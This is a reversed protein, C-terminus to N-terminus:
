EEEEEEEGAEGAEGEGAEGEDNFPERTEPIRLEAPCETMFVRYKNVGKKWKAHNRPLGKNINYDDEIIAQRVEDKGGPTYIQRWRGVAVLQNYSYQEYARGGPLPDPVVVKRPKTRKPRPAPQKATFPQTASHPRKSSPPSVPEPSPSPEKAQTLSFNRTRLSLTKGGRAPCADVREEVSVETEQSAGSSHEFGGYEPSDPVLRNGNEDIRGVGYDEVWKLQEKDKKRRLKEAQEFTPMEPQQGTYEPHTALYEVTYERKQHLPKLLETAIKEDIQGDARLRAVHEKMGEAERHAHMDGYGSRYEVNEVTKSNDPKPMTTQTSTTLHFTSASLTNHFYKYTAKRM